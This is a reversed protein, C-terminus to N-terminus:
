MTSEKYESLARISKKLDNVSKVQVFIGSEIDELKKLFLKRYMPFRDTEVGKVELFVTYKGLTFVFDPKYKIDRVKAKILKGNKFWPRTLKFGDVLLFKEPEYSPNYGNEKLYAYTDRELKSKFEIGDYAVTTANKVKKNVSFM